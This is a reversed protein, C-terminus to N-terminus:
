QKVGAKNRTIQAIFMFLSGAFIVTAAALLLLPAVSLSNGNIACIAQVLLVIENLLVGAIFIGCGGKWVAPGTNLLKETVLFGVLFFSLFGLTVLHLYGVIVPRFGFAFRGLIPIVSLFQLILKIIFAAFSLGWFFKVQLPLLQLWDALSSRVLLLLVVLAALQLCASVAAIVFIWAPPNMWLLSLCYAPICATAMLRFFLRRKKADLPLKYHEATFFFLALVGFSFWGNYQFHLFLYVSNYYLNPAVLKHSMIYALLFPGAAS